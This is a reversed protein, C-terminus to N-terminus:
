VSLVLSLHHLGRSTPRFSGRQRSHSILNRLCVIGTQKCGWIGPVSLNRLWDFVKLALHDPICSVKEVWGM